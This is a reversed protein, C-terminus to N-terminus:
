GVIILGLDIVLGTPTAPLFSQTLTTSDYWPLPIIQIPKTLLSGTILPVGIQIAGFAIGIMAGLSFVKWQWTTKREGSEALAMSGQANIGAFPFPLREVDSTVRFFFYGLTYSKISGIVSMFMILLIPVIWASHLLPRQVIADSTPQPAFWSPFKGLLGVDRVADSQIFYQRWILQAIPGGGAMAGAVVLLIVLEQQSLTRMARRSVESFIILTVWAAAIGGGTILSLYIAGPMMLLGCFFAGAVAVWTFGNKFEKPTELVSRYVELEKDMVIPRRETSTSEGELTAGPTEPM